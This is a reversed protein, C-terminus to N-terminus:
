PEAAPTAPTTTPMTTAAAALAAAEEQERLRRLEELDVKASKTSPLLISGAVFIIGAAILLSWLISGIKYGLSPQSM